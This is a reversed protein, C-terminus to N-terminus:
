TSQLAGSYCHCSNPISIVCSFLPYASSVIWFIVRAIRVLKRVAGDILVETICIRGLRHPLTYKSGLGRLYVRMFHKDFVSLACKSGISACVTNVRNVMDEERPYYAIESGVNVHKKRYKMVLLVWEHGSLNKEIIVRAVKYLRDCVFSTKWSQWYWAFKHGSCKRHGMQKYNLKCSNPEFVPTHGQLVGILESENVLLAYADCWDEQMKNLVNSVDRSEVVEM